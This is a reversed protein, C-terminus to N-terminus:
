VDAQQEMVARPATCACELPKVCQLQKSSLSLFFHQEEEIHTRAWAIQGFYTQSHKGASHESYLLMRATGEPAQAAALVSRPKGLSESIDTSDWAESELYGNIILCALFLALTQAWVSIDAQGTAKGTLHEHSLPFFFSSRYVGRDPVCSPVSCNVELQATHLLFPIVITHLSQKM